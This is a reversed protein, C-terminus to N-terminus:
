KQGVILAAGGLIALWLAANSKPAEAPAGPQGELPNGSALVNQLRAYELAPDAERGFTALLSKYWADAAPAVGGPATVSLVEPHLEPSLTLTSQEGLLVQTAQRQAEQIRHKFADWLSPLRWPERVALQAWDLPLLVPFPQPYYQPEFESNTVSAMAGLFKSIRGKQDAAATVSLAIAAITGVVPILAVVPAFLAATQLAGSTEPLPKSRPTVNVFVLPPNGWASQWPMDFLRYDVGPNDIARLEVKPYVGKWFELNNAFATAAQDAQADIQYLLPNQYAVDLAGQYITALNPTGSDPM